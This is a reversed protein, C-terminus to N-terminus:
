PAIEAVLVTDDASINGDVEVWAGQSAGVDVAVSRVMGNEAVVRVVPEGRGSSGLAALPVTLVDEAQAVIIRVEVQVGPPADWSDEEDLEIEALYVMSGDDRPVPTSSIDMLTGSFQEQTASLIIRALDGPDVRLRDSPLLEATVVQDDSTLTLLDSGPQVFDGIEVTVQGARRPWSGVIVDNLKFLGDPQSFGHDLQWERLAEQTADDFNGDPSVSYGATALVRQLAAVDAGADGVGLDRWFATSSKAAVMPRGDIALLISGEEIVNGSAVEVSTVRGGSASQVSGRVPYGTTGRVVVADELTRREVPATVRIPDDVTDSAGYTVVLGVALVIAVCLVVVAVFPRM